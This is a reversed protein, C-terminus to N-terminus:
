RKYPPAGLDTQGMFIAVRCRKDMAGSTWWKLGNIVYSDGDRRIETGLRADISAGDRVAEAVVAHVADIPDAATAAAQCRLAFADADRHGSVQVPRRVLFAIRAGRQEFMGLREGGFDAEIQHVRGGSAAGVAIEGRRMRSRKVPEADIAFAGVGM